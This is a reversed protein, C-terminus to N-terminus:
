LSLDKKVINGDEAPKKVENIINEVISEYFIDGGYELSKGGWFV